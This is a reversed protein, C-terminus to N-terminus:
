GERRGKREKDWIKEREEKVEAEVKILEGKGKKEKGRRGRDKQGGKEKEKGCKGEEKPDTRRMEQRRRREADKKRGEVLTEEM